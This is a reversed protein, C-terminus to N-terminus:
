YKGYSFTSQLLKYDITRCQQNLVRHSFLSLPLYRSSFWTFVKKKLEVCLVSEKLRKQTGSVIFVCGTERGLTESPEPNAYRERARSLSEFNSYSLFWECLMGSM